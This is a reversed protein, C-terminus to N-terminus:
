FQDVIEHSSSSVEVNGEISDDFKGFRLADYCRKLHEPKIDYSRIKPFIQEKNCLDINAPVKVFSKLKDLTSRGVSLEYVRLKIKRSIIIDMEEPTMPTGGIVEVCKRQPPKWSSQFLKKGLSPSNQNAWFGLLKWQLIQKPKSQLNKWDVVIDDPEITVTEGTMGSKLANNLENNDPRSRSLVNRIINFFADFECEICVPLLLYIPPTNEKNVNEEAM